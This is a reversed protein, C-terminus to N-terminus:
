VSHQKVFEQANGIKAIVKYRCVRAKADNYDTPISVFDAPDIKCAVLIDSGSSFHKIYSPACVHLGHYCTVNDNDNVASRPMEVIKGVSNDMTGSHKDKFNSRVVKFAIIDGDDDIGLGRGAVFDFLRKILKGSNEAAVIKGHFKSFRDIDRKNGSNVAEFLRTGLRGDVPTEGIFVRQDVVKILGGSKVELGRKVDILNHIEELKSSRIKGAKNHEAIEARIKDYNPHQKDIQKPKGDFFIQVTSPLLVACFAVVKDVTKKEKVQTAVKKSAPKKTKTSKEVKEVAKVAKATKKAATKVKAVAEKISPAKKAVAKKPKEAEEKVPAKAALKKTAAKPKAVKIPKDAPINEGKAIWGRITSGAVGIERAAEAASKGSATLKKFKSVQDLQQKNLIM